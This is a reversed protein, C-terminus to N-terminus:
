RQLITRNERQYQEFKERQEPTLVAAIEQRASQTIAGFRPQYDRRLEQLQRHSDALIQRVQERQKRNLRLNRNLDREIRVRVVEPNAIAQRVFHRVQVRTVAMGGAFGAFFVLALLLWVKWKNM